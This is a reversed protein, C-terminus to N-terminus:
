RGYGTKLARWDLPQRVQEQKRRESGDAKDLQIWEDL